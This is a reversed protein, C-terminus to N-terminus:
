IRTGGESRRQKKAALTPSGLAFGDKV